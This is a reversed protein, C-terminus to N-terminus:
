NTASEGEGSEGGEDHDEDADEEKLNLFNHLQKEVEIKEIRYKERIKMALRDRKGAIATLEDDSLKEWREKVIGKFQKWNGEVQNWNM